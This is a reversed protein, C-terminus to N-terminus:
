MNGSVAFNELAEVDTAKMPGISIDRNMYAVAPKHEQGFTEKLVGRAKKYDENSAM